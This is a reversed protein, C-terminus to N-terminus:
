FTVAFGGTVLSAQYNDFSLNSVSKEWTYNAFVKLRRSLTREALLMLAILTRERRSPDDVSVPQTLYDYYSLRVRAKAEWREVRYRLEESLRYNRYDYFGSGNDVNLELGARTATQWRKKADWTQTWNLEVLHTQLALSTNTLTLGGADM